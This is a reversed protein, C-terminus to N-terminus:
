LDQPQQLLQEIAALFRAGTFGDTVRPPRCGADGLRPTRVGLMGDVAWPREVVRGFGVLAVQPAYIVGHVEEVGLDGLNTVTATADSLEERRLRGRRARDVLDRLGRMLEPVPLTDADLLAPAVLGGGRLSVAVGLHVHEAATFGDDVWFGNLQPVQRLALATAKLLLAAPVIRETVPLERNRDRLWSVAAHLDVTSALHYHPVDRWSRAMARAITERM